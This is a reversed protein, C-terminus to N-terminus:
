LDSDQLWKDQCHSLLGLVIGADDLSFRLRGMEFGIRQITNRAIERRRLGYPRTSTFDERFLNFQVTPKDDKEFIVSVVDNDVLVKVAADRVLSSVILTERM